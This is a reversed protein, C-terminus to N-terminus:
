RNSFRARARSLFVFQSSLPTDGRLVCCLLKQESQLLHVARFLSLRAHYNQEM